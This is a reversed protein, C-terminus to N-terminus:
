EYHAVEGFATARPLRFSICYMEKNPAVSRVLHMSVEDESGLVCGLEEEVRHRIDSEAAERDMERTFCHCHVMPMVDYLAGLDIDSESPSSPPALIGRFADLFTIASDPLNMVFHAIRKRPPLQSPPMLGHSQGRSQARRQSQSLPPGMFGPLPDAAVRRAAHRIFERGDECSARVSDSVKNDKINLTLYKYSEPNLDNALVACGKKAAPLAFPGVGAFVDAILDQPQFIDVLRAHETHLRSNWYVRSFDFTFRCDSESHEVIYNPEGALLEMKFFRFQSDISDLKNVVTRLRKNKDLIVQGIIHKYPLYEDNLNVHALHGTSSFGSPSGDLLEEPLIAHLIEDANWYDYGLEINYTTLSANQAKLYSRADASLDAEHQVRLLVLKDDGDPYEVDAVVGRMAESKLVPGTKAAPLRAAIVPVTRHFASRVLTDKMWRAAPPSTDITVKRRHM